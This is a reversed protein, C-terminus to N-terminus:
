DRSAGIRTSRRTAWAAASWHRCRRACLTPFRRRACGQSSSAGRGDVLLLSRRRSRPRRIECCAVGTARHHAGDRLSPAPRFQRRRQSGPLDDAPRRAPATRGPSSCTPPSRRASARPSSSVLSGIEEGWRSCGRPQLRPRGGRPQFPALAALNIAISARTTPAAAGTCASATAADAVVAVLGESWQADYGRVVDGHGYMLVTPLDPSEIREGILMPPAGPVPNAVVRSSGGLATLAPAIEGDLYARLEPGRQANQSETRCAVLAALDRAFDGRRLAGAAREVAVERTMAADRRRRGARLARRGAARRLVPRRHRAVARVAPGGRFDVTHNELTEWYIMLVYRDPSEVGRNVKYGRFGKATRDRTEVGQRIAAEFEANRGPQIRIDAIELIM